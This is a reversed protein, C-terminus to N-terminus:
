REGVRERVCAFVRPRADRSPTPTFPHFFSLSNNNEKIYPGKGSIERKVGVRHITPSVRSIHCALDASIAVSCGSM